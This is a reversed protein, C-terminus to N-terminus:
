KSSQYNTMLVLREILETRNPHKTVWYRVWYHEDTALQELTNLPTKFNQAVRARVSYCVDTALLELTKTSTNPNIAVNSRIASYYETALEGLVKASTDESESLSLKTLYAM